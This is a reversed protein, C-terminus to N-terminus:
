RAGQGSPPLINHAPNLYVAYSQRTVRIKESAVIERRSADTVRTEIRYELDQNNRATNFTLTARGKPM